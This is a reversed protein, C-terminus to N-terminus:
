ILPGPIRLRPTCSKKVSFLWTEIQSRWLAFEQPSLQFMFDAPFRALNRKVAQVLARTEVGYLAALDRDLMARQGRIIHIPGAVTEATTM